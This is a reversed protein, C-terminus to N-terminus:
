KIIKHLEAIREDALAKAKLAAGSVAEKSTKELGKICRDVLNKISSDSAFDDSTITVACDSLNLQKLLGEIKHEYSLAMFPTSQNIAFVVSHYRSGFLFRANRIISQQIDSGITEPMVVVRPNNLREEIEKFFLVDKRSPTAEHYTQPLMVFNLGSYLDILRAMLRIYFDLIQRHELNKFAYHWYLINPVVVAYDDGTRAKLEAPVRCHGESLFASDVTMSHNIGLASLTESSVSDRVSLYAFRRLLGTSEDLFRKQSDTSTPFPGVSRGYYIVPTRTSLGMKLMAVHEWGQFGGMNVGGPACLIYDAQKMMRMLRGTTPHLRWLLPHSIGNVLAFHAGKVPAINIYKNNPHDVLFERIDEDNEDWFVIDIKAEPYNANLWNIIGRHASEDGRNKLPQDLYLIRLSKNM